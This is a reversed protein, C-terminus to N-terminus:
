FHFIHKVIRIFVFERSLFFVNVFEHLCLTDYTGLYKTKSMDLAEDQQRHPIEPEKASQYTMTGGLTELHHKFTGESLHPIGGFNSLNAQALNRRLIDLEHAMSLEPSPLSPYHIMQDHDHYNGDIHENEM